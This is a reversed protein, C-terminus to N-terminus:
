RKGETLALFPQTKGELMKGIQPVAIEGITPGTPTVINSLFVEDFTEIGEEAITLKAKIALHLARWLRAAERDPDFARRKKEPAKPLQIRFRLQRGLMRFSVLAVGDSEGVAWADAGRGLVLQRIQEQSRGIPVKTHEAFRAM